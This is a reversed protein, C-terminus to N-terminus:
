DRRARDLEELAEHFKARDRRPVVDLARTWRQRAADENGDRVDCRGLNLLSEADQPRARLVAEFGARAHATWELTLCLNALRSTQRVAAITPRRALLRQLPEALWALANGSFPAPGRDMALLRLWESESPRLKGAQHPAVTKAVLLAAEPSYCWPTWQRTELLGHLFAASGRASHQLLLVEFGWESRLREWAGPDEHASVFAQLHTAGAVELRGDLFTLGEGDRWEIYGGFDMDHFLPGHFGSQELSDLCEEPFLGPAVFVGRDRWTGLLSPSAGALIAAALVFGALVSGRALVREISPRSRVLLDLNAAAVPVAAIAFLPVNRRALLALILFPVLAAMRSPSFRRHNMGFSVGTVMVLIWYGRLRPDFPDDWPRAFELIRGFIAASGDIREFLVLPFTWARLGYPNCCLALSSVLGVLVLTRADIGRYSPNQWRVPIRRDALILGAHYLITLPGLFALSHLNAWLAVLVPLVWLRRRNRASGYLLAHVTALACGSLIEPRVMTREHGALIALLTVFGASAAGAGASRAAVLMLCSTVALVITKVLVLAPPGAWSWLRVCGVDALWQQNVWERGRLAYTLVDTRPVAHHEVIWRGSALHWFVDPTVISHLAVAATLVVATAFQWRFGSM